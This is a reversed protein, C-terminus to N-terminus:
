VKKIKIQPSLKGLDILINELQAQHNKPGQINDVTVWAKKNAEPSVIDRSSEVRKETSHRDAFKTKVQHPKFDIVWNDYVLVSFTRIRHSLSYFTLNKALLSLLELQQHATQRELSFQNKCFLTQSGM